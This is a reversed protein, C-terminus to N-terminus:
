RKFVAFYLLLLILFDFLLLFDFPIVFTPTLNNSSLIGTYLGVTLIISKVFFFAFAITIMLIKRNRTRNYSLTAVVLLSFALIMICAILVDQVLYEIEEM